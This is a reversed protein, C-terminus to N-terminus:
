LRIGVLYDRDEVTGLPQVLVPQLLDLRNVSPSFSPFTAAIWRQSAAVISRESSRTIGGGAERIGVRAHEIRQIQRAPGAWNSLLPLRKWLALARQSPWLRSSVDRSRRMVAIRAM